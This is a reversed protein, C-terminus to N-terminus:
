YVVLVRLRLIRDDYCRENPVPAPGTHCSRNITSMAKSGPEKCKIKPKRLKSDTVRFTITAKLRVNSSIIDM